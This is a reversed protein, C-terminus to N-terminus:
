GTRMASAVSSAAWIAMPPGTRARPYATETGSARRVGVAGGLAHCPEGLVQGNLWAVAEADTLTVNTAPTDPAPGDVQPLPACAGDEVCAACQLATETRALAFRPIAARKRPGESSSRNAEDEPSGLLVDGAPLVIM